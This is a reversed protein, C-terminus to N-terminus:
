GRAAEGYLAFVSKAAEIASAIWAPDDGAAEDLAQGFARWEGPQHTASLYARPMWPPVRKALIGGGLRSGEIVYAMGFAAAADAPPAIALPTPIPQKLATLDAELLQARPRLPPLGPRDALVTEVGPLALAHATLFRTYAATDALDFGGFVADVTEHDPATAARLQALASM